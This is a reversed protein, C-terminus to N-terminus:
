AAGYFEARAQQDALLHFRFWATIPGRFRGGDGGSEFHDADAVEGYVAAVQTARQYRSYVYSPRVITDNQGALYFAPGRLQGDTGQPGPQIPVTTDVRPDAGAAIAGGGGQSHGTSGIKDLDVRGAFM